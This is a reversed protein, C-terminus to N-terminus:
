EDRETKYYPYVRRINAKNTVNPAKEYTIDGNTHHQLVKYPYVTWTSTQQDFETEMIVENTHKNIITAVLNDLVIKHSKKVIKGCSMLLNPMIPFIQVDVADKPLRNFPAIGEQVQDM